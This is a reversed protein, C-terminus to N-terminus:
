MGRPDFDLRQWLISYFTTTLDVNRFNWNIRERRNDDGLLSVQPLNKLDYSVHLPFHDSGSYSDDVRIDITAAHMSQSSVCHDLWSRSLSGNNVHTFTNPPLLSTDSIILDRSTCLQQLESYFSNNPNANFDGLIVVGAADSSDIISALKGIYMDYDYENDACFYPLYVNLFLYQLEQLTISFGMLRDDDYQIINSCPAYSKHWLISIGGYPRGVLVNDQINVSSLSFSNFQNHVNDLLNLENPCLWTEQLFVVSATECLKTIIPLKSKIGNCNFSTIKFKNAM